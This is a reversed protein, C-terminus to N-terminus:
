CFEQHVELDPPLEQKVYFTVLAVRRASPLVLISKATSTHVQKFIALYLKQDQIFMNDSSAENSHILPLLPQPRITLKPSQARIRLSTTVAWSVQNVSCLMLPSSNWAAPSCSEGQVCAKRETIWPKLLPPLFWCFVFVCQGLEVGTQADSDSIAAYVSFYTGLWTWDAPIQQTLLSFTCSHWCSGM